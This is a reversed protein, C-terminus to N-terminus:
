PDWGFWKDLERRERKTPRGTRPPRIGSQKKVVEMKRYEEEPTLDEMYQSVLKAGVRKDLPQLIRLKRHVPGTRVEIEMGPYVERSPKIEEGNIKVKGSRCAQTAMSRTKFVRVSWLWKDIRPTDSQKMM